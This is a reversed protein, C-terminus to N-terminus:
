KFPYFGFWNLFQGINLIKRKELSQELIELRKEHERLSNELCQILKAGNIMKGLCIDCKWRLNPVRDLLKLQDESLESCKRHCFRGCLGNDCQILGSSDVIMEHCKLCIKLANRSM